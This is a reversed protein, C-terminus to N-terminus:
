TAFPPSLLTEAQLMPASPARVGTGPEGKAAPLAGLETV